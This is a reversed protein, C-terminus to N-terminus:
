YIIGCYLGGSAAVKGNELSIDSSVVSNENSDGTTWGCESLLPVFITYYHGSNEENIHKNVLSLFQDLSVHNNSKELEDLLLPCLVYDNEKQRKAEKEAAVERQRKKDDKKQQKGRKQILDEYCGKCITKEGEPTEWFARVRHRKLNNCRFCHFEHKAESEALKLVSSTVTADFQRHKVM